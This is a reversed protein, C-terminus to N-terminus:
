GAVFPRKHASGIHDLVATLRQEYDLADAVEPEHDPEAPASDPPPAIDAPPSLDEAPEPEPELEVPESDATELESDAAAPEDVSVFISRIRKWISTRETAVAPADDDRHLPESQAVPEPAPEPDAEAVPEPEAVPDAVHEAVTEPAPEDLVPEEVEATLKVKTGWGSAEIEITGRGDRGEWELSSEPEARTIKIADDDLLEALREAKELEAWVEPQSKVLTRTVAFTRM